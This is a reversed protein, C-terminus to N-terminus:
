DDPGGFIDGRISRVIEITRGSENVPEPDDEWRRERIFRDCNPVYGGAWRRSRYWKRLGAVLEDTSPPPDLRMYADRAKVKAVKGAKPYADWLLEFAYQRQIHAHPLEPADPLVLATVPVGVTISEVEGLLDPERRRRLHLLDRYHDYFPGLWPNSPLADYWKNAAKVANDRPLLPKRGEPLLQDAAHNAIWLWGTALDFYSWKAAQLQRLGILVAEGQIGLDAGAKHLVLRYIGYPAETAWQNTMLYLGLLRARLDVGALDAWVTHRVKTAAVMGSGGLWNM